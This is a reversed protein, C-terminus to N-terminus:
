SLAPVRAGRLREVVRLAAVLGDEHFGSGQYAGSFHIPGQANIEHIREQARIAAADFLPHDYDLEAITLRPDIADMENVSVFYNKKGPLKQLLNMYYVTATRFGGTRTGAKKYNWASWVRRRPPMVSEDTHLVIRNAQYRFAGLIEREIPRADALLRLAEDAHTALLVRDFRHVGSRAELVVGDDGDRRVSRVPDNLRVPRKLRARIAENYTRSGGRVFRWPLHSNVGLLGHNGFFQVFTRAPFNLMEEIPASWIASGMPLIFNLIFDDTFGKLRLYQELTLDPPMYALDPRARQFFRLMDALLRWFAPSLANRRRGLMSNLGTFGSQLGSDRDWLSFSMDCRETEIELEAFLRTLAPYTTENYVIFGTDVPFERGAERVTLTNTHGGSYGAREFVEIDYDNRLYYAAAIGAIGTGVIALKKM